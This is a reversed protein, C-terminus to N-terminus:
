HLLVYRILLMFLDVLAIHFFNVTIV